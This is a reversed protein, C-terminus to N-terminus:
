WFTIWFIVGFIVLCTCIKSGLILGSIGLFNASKPDLHGLSGLLAGLSGLLAVLSGLLAGLSGWSLGLSGSVAELSGPSTGSSALLREM